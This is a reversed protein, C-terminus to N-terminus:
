CRGQAELVRESSLSVVGFMSEAFETELVNAHVFDNWPSFCISSNEICLPQLSM